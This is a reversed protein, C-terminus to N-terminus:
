QSTATLHSANEAPLEFANKLADFWIEAMRQYGADTPHLGDEGILNLTFGAHIDVLTAGEDPAMRRIQENFDEVFHVSNSKGGERQPPLTGIFVLVGRSTGESILEELAGITPSIADRNGVLNLDNVGELLLLVDPDTERLADVLRGKDEAARNGARGANFVDITSATYRERLLTQLKFVYSQPLGADLSLAGQLPASTTGATM